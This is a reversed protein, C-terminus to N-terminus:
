SEAPTVHLRLFQKISLLRFSSREILNFASGILPEAEQASLFEPRTAVYDQGDLRIFCGGAVRVNKSWDSSNGFTLAILVIDGTRRAGVPTVYQRGSRRGAHRIQAAMRFHKRGAVHRIVPNLVKTMPRVVLKVFLSPAIPTISSAVPAALRGSDASM